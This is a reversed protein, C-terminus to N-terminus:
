PSGLGIRDRDIRKAPDISWSGMDVSWGDPACRASTSAAISRSRDARRRLALDGSRRRRDDPVRPARDGEGEGTSRPRASDLLADVKKNSYRQINQGQDGIASTSWTQAFGGVAPDTTWRGCSWTSTPRSARTSRLDARDLNEIISRFALSVSNSRFCCRTSGARAPQDDVHSHRVRAAAWEERAHRERGRALRGLRAAGQRGDHRVASAQDHQRRVVADDPFPRARATRLERVRERLMARRDVGMALARRVRIDSFIPHPATKSKPAHPNFAAWTYGLNPQVLPRAVKSSDLTQVQDIPYAQLFDAQGNLMQTMGVNGDTIISLIIRDLKPRGRYNATDAVLEIRVKPEWKVFKFQGSGVITRAQESTHLQELPISGYVHQPVPVLQYVLDYFQEPTRKKFWAVATLSDRM